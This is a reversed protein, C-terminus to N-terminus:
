TSERFCEAEGGMELRREVVTFIVVLTSDGSSLACLHRYLVFRPCFCAGDCCLSDFNPMEANVSFWESVSVWVCYSDKLIWQM